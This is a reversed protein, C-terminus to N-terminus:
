AQYHQEGGHEYGQVERGKVFEQSLFNKLVEAQSGNRGVFKFGYRYGGNSSVSWVIETPLSHRTHKNDKMFSLDVEVEEWRSISEKLSASFGGLGFDKVTGTFSSGNQRIYCPLPTVSTYREYKRKVKTATDFMKALKSFWGNRSAVASKEQNVKLKIKFLDKIYASIFISVAVYIIFVSFLYHEPIKLITGAIALLSLIASLLVIIKVARKKGFGFRLLMHHLHTKDAFFPSKGKITRKIMVMVTDVIPVTLILLAAVPPVISKEKQTVAIALFALAFGLSNSGSDGMFVKANWNYKLFGATAGMM